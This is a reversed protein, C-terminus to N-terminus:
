SETKTHSLDSGYVSYLLAKVQSSKSRDRYYMSSSSRPFFGSQFFLFLNYNFKIQM